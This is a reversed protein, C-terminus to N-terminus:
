IKIAALAKASAKTLDQSPGNKQEYMRRDASTLLEEISMGPSYAFYGCSVRMKWGELRAEDNWRDLNHNLRDVAVQAQDEATDVMLVIFEDGGYRFIVDSARFTKKLIKAVDQLLRDGIVHGFLTNAEKFDDVDVMMLTLAGQARDTRRMERLLISEMWRRNLTDTLPDLQAITEAAKARLLQRTLEKRLDRLMRRQDYVYANFLAILAVFGFFVQPLYPTDIRLEEGRWLMRPLLLACIGAALLLAVLLAISWLHRDRGDLHELDNQVEDLRSEPHNLAIAPSPPEAGPAPQSGCHICPEHISHQGTAL